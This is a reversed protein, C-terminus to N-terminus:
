VLKKLMKIYGMDKFYEIEGQAIFGFYEYVPISNLSANVSVRKQSSEKLENILHDFLKRGIGKNQESKLIFFHHIHATKKYSIVGRTSGADDLVFYQIQDDLILRKLADVSFISQSLPMTQFQDLASDICKAINAADEIEAKRIM